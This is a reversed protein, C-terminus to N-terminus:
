GGSITAKRRPTTSTPRYSSCPSAARKYRAKAEVVAIPFDPQYRLIYDARKQRGRRAKGGAFVIRGDTFTRQENIAHPADDWGAKQLMPVVFKRCTDAETETM